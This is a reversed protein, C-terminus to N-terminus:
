KIGTKIVDEISKYSSVYNNYTIEINKTHYYANLLNSFCKIAEDIIVRQEPIFLNLFLDNYVPKSKDVRILGVGDIRPLKTYGCNIAWTYACIQLLYEYRLANSTKFDLLYVANNIKAICDVTGGYYPCLVPEETYLLEFTNGNSILTNYWNKFNNFANYVKNRQNYPVIDTFDKHVSTKLFYEITEHTATGVDCANNKIDIYKKYGVKAAWDILYSNDLMEQLIKTVRPLTIDDYIYNSINQKRIEDINSLLLIDHLQNEITFEENM